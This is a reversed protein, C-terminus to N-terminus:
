EEKNVVVKAHRIVRDKYRYGKEFVELIENEDRDDESRVMMADHLESDLKEGPEGFPAVEMETFRKHIKNIILDIGEQLKETSDNEHNELASQLRELDDVVPVFTKVVSEGDYRLLDSFERETRKRYNDFEAKLRLHRDELGALQTTLDKIIEDDRIVQKEKKGSAPKKRQKIKKTSTKKKVPM